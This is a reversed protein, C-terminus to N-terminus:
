RSRDSPTISKALQTLLQQTYGSESQRPKMATEKVADTLTGSSLKSIPESTSLLVGRVAAVASSQTAAIVGIIEMASMAGVPQPAETGM